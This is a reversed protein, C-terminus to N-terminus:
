DSRALARDLLSTALARLEPDPESAALDTLTQLAEASDAGIKALTKMSEARLAHDEDARALQSLAPVVSAAPQFGAAFLAARRVELVSDSLLAQSIVRAARTDRVFRLARMAAERIAPDPDAAAALLTDDARESGTNGLARLLAMREDPANAAHLDKLLEDTMGRAVDPDSERLRNAGAGFAVRARNRLDGESDKMETRLADVLASNPREILLASRLAAARVDSAISPDRLVNALAAQGERGNAGGLTEALVLAAPAGQRILREAEAIAAPDRQFLASLRAVVRGRAERDSPDLKLYEASLSATTAGRLDDPLQAAGNGSFSTSATALSLQELGSPVGAIAGGELAATKFRLVLSLEARVSTGLLDVAAIEKGAMSLLRGSGDTAYSFHSQRILPSRPGAAVLGNGSVVRVYAQKEKSCGPGPCAYRM